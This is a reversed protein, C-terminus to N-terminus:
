PSLFGEVTEGSSSNSLLWGGNPKREFHLPKPLSKGDLAAPLYFWIVRTPAPTHGSYNKQQQPFHVLWRTATIQASVLTLPTKDFEVFADGKGDGALILDGGFHPADKRPCWVAQGQRVNWGSGSVTFLKKPTATQCGSSIILAALLAPWLFFGPSLYKLWRM